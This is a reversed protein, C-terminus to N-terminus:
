PPSPYRVYLRETATLKHERLEDATAPRFRLRELLRISRANAAEVSALFRRAAYSEELHGLVARTAQTALGRGGHSRAFVYAIWATGDRMVTSQVFGIPASQPPIVVWNLWHDAGDPSKREELRAYVKRLHEASPPPPYDLYSYLEADKLVEFMAEAHRAELPELVLDGARLGKL